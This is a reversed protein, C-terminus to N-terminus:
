ASAGDNLSIEESHAPVSSPKIQIVRSPPASQVSMVGFSSVGQLLTVCIEAECKSSRVAYADTLRNRRSSM